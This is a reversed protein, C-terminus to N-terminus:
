GNDLYGVREAIEGSKEPFISEFPIM